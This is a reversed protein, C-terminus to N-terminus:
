RIPPIQDLRIHSLKGDIFCVMVKFQDPAQPGLRERGIVQGHAEIIALFASTKISGIHVEDPFPNKEIDSKDGANTM